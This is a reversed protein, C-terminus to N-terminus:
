KEREFILTMFVIRDKVDRMFHPVGPPTVVIDGADITREV